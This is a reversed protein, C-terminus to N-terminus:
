TDEGTLDGRRDYLVVAEAILLDNAVMTPCLKAMRSWTRLLGRDLYRGDIRGHAELRSLLALTISEVSMRIWPDAAADIKRVRDVRTVIAEHALLSARKIPTVVLGTQTAFHATWGSALWESRRCFAEYVGARLNDHHLQPLPVQQIERLKSAIRDGPVATWRFVNGDFCAGYAHDNKGTRLLDMLPVGGRDQLYSLTQAREDRVENHRNHLSPLDALEVMCGFWPHAHLDNLTNEASFSHNVLESRILMAMKDGAPIMSNGLRELAFRPDEALLETLGEFRETTGDAHLRAMAAWVEPIAGIEVPASRQTGLYRSLKVQSPTGDERWGVQEVVFAFDPPMPPPEIVVWPDDIFLQCRLEGADILNAPVVAKGDSVRLVEPARWPATSSWVYVALDDLLPVDSFILMDERLHASSALRRPHAVLVTVDLPGSLTHLTAVIRGGPNNRVTDAFQQIRSEFVDGHRRRASLDKQLVDGHPSIYAFEVHEVGSARVAVFRDEAFDAPDCVEATMRWAAPEGTVGARIQIHPPKVAIRSEFDESRLTIQRELQTPGFILPEAPTIAVTDAKAEAICPTLGDPGPVRIPTDFHLELGEAMFLVCRADAGLPGNVVIEFHGLQPNEDDDFPDVCTEVDEARWSEEVIWELAGLRRVRVVWEPAPDTQSPPLMVWPRTSYVTRGDPASAGGVPSGLVFSPRADKRVPHPSGLRVQDATVLQLATINSLDIFASRWGHWGGPSGSDQAHVTEGTRTDILRCEEPFVTWVGEKLGDRRPIWRGSADFALLPDAKVVLPLAAKIGSPHSIVIERVPSPVAIQATATDAGWTRAPHVQRVDGDFSVRWPLDADTEPTPLVLVIEDDSVNYEIAPQRASRAIRRATRMQVPTERLQKVLEDLLVDPLGTTSADLHEDLLTPTATTEEIFEIIRDLIDVAFQAGYALFNRVPVDLPASRHEKGPEELWEILAAGHPPRGQNTHDNIIRLLDGLCHVPIGAHLTLTMVYRFASAEEIRPFRALSFKDLLGFLNKRIEAEFDADRSIGLEDWFSDWYKGQEYELAAHGVLVLLTLAPYRRIFKRYPVGRLFLQRAAAGYRQQAHRIDDISFNTEVVLNVPQLRQRWDYEADSMWESLSM